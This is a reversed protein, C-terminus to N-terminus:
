SLGGGGKPKFKEIAAPWLCLGFLLGEGSVTGRGNENKKKDERGAPELKEKKEGM